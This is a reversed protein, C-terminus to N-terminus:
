HLRNLTAAMRQVIEQYCATAAAPRVIFVYDRGPFFLAANARVAERFRRKVRNRVVAKGVKKSVSFGVRYGLQRNPRHYLIFLPNAVSKGRQYIRRFDNRDKLRLGASLM